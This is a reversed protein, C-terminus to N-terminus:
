SCGNNTQKKRSSGVTVTFYINQTCCLVKVFNASLFFTIFAKCHCQM